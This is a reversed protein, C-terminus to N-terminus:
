CVHLDSHHNVTQLIYRQTRLVINIIVQKLTNWVTWIQDSRHWLEIWGLVLLSGGAVHDLITTQWILAVLTESSGVCAIRHMFEHSRGIAVAALDHGVPPEARFCLTIILRGLGLSAGFSLLLSVQVDMCPAIGAM